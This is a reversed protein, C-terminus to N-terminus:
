ANIYILPCPSNRDKRVNVGRGRSGSGCRNM